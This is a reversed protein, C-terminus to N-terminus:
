AAQKDAQEDRHKDLKMSALATMQLKNVPGQTKNVGSTAADDDKLMFSLEEWQQPLPTEDELGTVDLASQLFGDRRLLVFGRLVLLQATGALLWVAVQTTSPSLYILLALGALMTPFLGIVLYQIEWDRRLFQEWHERARSLPVLWYISRLSM